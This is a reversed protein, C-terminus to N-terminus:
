RFVDQLVDAVLETGAQVLLLDTGVARWEHGPHSPLQSIFNSPMRTREIGPPLPKGRALNKRIGPPLPKYGEAGYRHALERAERSSIGARVLKEYSATSRDDKRVQERDAKQAQNPKGGRDGPPAAELPAAVALSVAAILIMLINM